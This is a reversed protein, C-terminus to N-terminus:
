MTYFTPKPGPRLLLNKKQIWLSEFWVTYDNLMLWQLSDSDQLSQPTVSCHILVSEQMKEKLMVLSKSFSHLQCLLSTVVDM